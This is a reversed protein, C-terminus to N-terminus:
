KKDTLKESSPSAAYLRHLHESEQALEGRLSDPELVEVEAGFSLLWRKIEQTGAVAVTLILAGDPLTEIKQSPHYLRERIWRAQFPSFRARVTVIAESGRLEFADRLHDAIDWDPPADFAANETELQHRRIRPLYFDRVAKRTECYAVLYLEGRWNLLTYPQVTRETVTDSHPSYYTIHLRQREDLAHRVDRLLEDSVAADPGAVPLGPLFRERGGGAIARAADDATGRVPLRRVYPSLKVILHQLASQDAPHLHAQAAMMTRRLANAEEDSLALFPIEYHPADYRWGSRRRDYVLPAGLRDRLFMADYFATRKSVEFQARLTAVNPYNGARIQADLWYLRESQAM